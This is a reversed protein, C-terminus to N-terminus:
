KLYEKLKEFFGKRPTVVKGELHYLEEVLEKEKGSPNKPVTVNVKVLLDGFVDENMYPLGKGKLRFVTNPQTGGPIKLDMKEDFTNIEIKDGLVLQPYSLDITTLLNENYREFMEHELVKVFVYLDGTGANNKGSAGKGQIRIKTGDRVGRPIKVSVSIKKRVRGEGNCNECKDKIIKGNGECNNCVATSQMRIPGLNRIVNVYGSGRCNPCTVPKSGKRAGSGNCVDCSVYNYYEVNKKVGFYVDKLTVEVDVRLDEGQEERTERRTRRGGGFGFLDAFIDENFMDEFGRFNGGGFGEFGGGFGQPGSGGGANFNTTGFNDYQQRKDPDSLVSFAENIEKFKEEANPNKNVDPHYQRALKRYAKKIADVNSDKGVGLTEYYNKAMNKFENSM